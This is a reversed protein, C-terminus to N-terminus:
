RPDGKPGRDVRYDSGTVEVIRCSGVWRSYTHEGYKDIIQEKTLNTAIAIPMEDRYRWDVIRRFEQLIFDSTREHGLDDLLLLDCTCCSESVETDGHLAAARLRSSLDLMPWYDIRVRREIEEPSLTPAGDDRTADGSANRIWESASPIAAAQEPTAAKEVSPGRLRDVEVALARLLHTKGVGGPGILVVGGLEGRAVSRCAEYAARNHRSLEFTDFTADAFRRGFGAGRIM